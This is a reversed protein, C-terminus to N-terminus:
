RQRKVPIAGASLILEDADASTAFNFFNLATNSLPTGKKTVLIFNRQIKYDGNQITETKPLVGDVSVIKVIDKVSALSAYGIANPNSAVTQIIDGTSTLEQSYKCMGITGTISEFGERTGSAAERGILVIPADDGGVEKWNAVDGTYIKSITQTSLDSIRNQPNVIIAIGDIACVTADLMKSEEDSLNRSSLGIDCRNETVSQIGAGSGTPNYTIRIDKNKEMYSESLFGIVKEVSTSGDIAVTKGDDASCSIISMLMFITTLLGAIKKMKYCGRLHIKGTNGFLIVIYADNEFPM